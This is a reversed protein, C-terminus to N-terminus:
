WFSSYMCVFHCLCFMLNRNGTFHSLQLVTSGFHTVSVSWACWLGQPLVCNYQCYKKEESIV